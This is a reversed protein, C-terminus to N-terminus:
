FYFSYKHTEPPIPKEPECSRKWDKWPLEREQLYAEMQVAWDPVPGPFLPPPQSQAVVPVSNTSSLKPVKASPAPAPPFARRPPLCSEPLPLVQLHRPPPPASSPM